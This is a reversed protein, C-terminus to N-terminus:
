ATLIQFSYQEWRPNIAQAVRDFKELMERVGFVVEEWDCSDYYEALPIEEGNQMKVIGNSVSDVDKHGKTMDWPEFTAITQHGEAWSSSDAYLHSGGTIGNVTVQHGEAWSSSDAYPTNIVDGTKEDMEMNLVGDRRLASEKHLDHYMEEAREKCESLRELQRDDEEKAYKEEMFKDVARKFDGGFKDGRWSNEDDGFSYDGKKLKDFDFVATYEVDDNFQIILMDRQKGDVEGKMVGINFPAGSVGNRHTVADTLDLNM